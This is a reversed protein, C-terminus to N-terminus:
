PLRDVDGPWVRITFDQFRARLREAFPKGAEKGPSCRALWLPDSGVFVQGRVHSCGAGFGMERALEVTERSVAERKGYPYALMEVGHGLVDELARRGAELEIRQTTLAHRTLWLHNETHAGVTVL